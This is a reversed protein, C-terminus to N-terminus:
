QVSEKHLWVENGTVPDKYNLTPHCPCDISSDHKDDNPMCHIIEPSEDTMDRM